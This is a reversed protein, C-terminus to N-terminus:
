CADWAERLLFLGRCRCHLDLDAVVFWSFDSWRYCKRQFSGLQSLAIFTCWIVTPISLYSVVFPCVEVGGDTPRACACM